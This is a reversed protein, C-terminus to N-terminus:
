ITSNVFSLPTACHILSLFHLRICRFFRAQSKSRGRHAISVQSRNKPEETRRSNRFAPNWPFLYPPRSSQSDKLTRATQPVCWCELHHATHESSSVCGAPSPRSACRVPSFLRCSEFLTDGHALDVRSPRRGAPATGLSHLPPWFHHIAFRSSLHGHNSRRQLCLWGSSPTVTAGSRAEIVDRRREIRRGQYAGFWASSAAFFIFFTEGRRM